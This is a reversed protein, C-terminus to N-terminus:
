KGLNIDVKKPGAQEPEQGKQMENASQAVIDGLAKVAMNFRVPDDKSNVAILRNIGNLVNSNNTLRELMPSSALKNVADNYGGMFEEKSINKEANEYKKIFKDCVIISALEHKFADREIDKDVYKLFKTSAIMLNRAAEIGEDKKLVTMMAPAANREAAPAAQKAEIEMNDLMTMVSRLQAVQEDLELDPNDFMKQEISDTYKDLLDWTKSLNQLDKESGTFKKLDGLPKIADKFKKDNTIEKPLKKLVQSLLMKYDALSTAPALKNIETLQDKVAKAADFGNDLILKEAPKALM